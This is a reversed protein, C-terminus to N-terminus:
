RGSQGGIPGGVRRTVMLISPRGPVGAKFDPWLKEPKPDLDEGPHQVALFLTAGDPTFEPGTAEAGRPVNLFLRPVAREPGDVACAFLGNPLPKRWSWRRNDTGIWLRGQPDFVLNDPGSFASADESGYKGGDAVPGALIFVSWEFRDAAHDKSGGADPPILELLHGDENDPRPNAADVHMDKRDNNRTLNLFVHGNVPSVEIDEPRDMPTGGAVQAARRADIVVDAQTEFGNATTLGGQGLVLPIWTLGKDDFRAVSLDGDDLLQGNKTGVAPDFRGKSIYRFVFGWARDEGLYVVVRGDGNVVPTAAEHRFRGLGTRKVPVSQPDFPDVEVMWGFRNPEHVEVTIDFRRDYKGWVARQLPTGADLAAQEAANLGAQAVLLSDTERHGEPIRGIFYFQFNEEASLVTGWPTKGGACNGLTGIVRMGSRDARTKLRKSGAAPGSVTMPTTASIRRAYPSKLDVQWHNGDHVMGVVSLGVAEQELAVGSASYAPVARGAATMEELTAYEHNVVLVGRTAAGKAGPEALFAVYDCNFGFQQRQAQPTLVDPNFAPGNERLPDGWRILVRADYGEPVAHTDIVELPLPAFDFVRRSGPATVVVPVSECAALAPLLAAAGTGLLMLRRSILQRIPAAGVEENDKWHM